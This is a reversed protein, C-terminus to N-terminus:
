NKEIIATYRAYDYGESDILISIGINPTTVELVYYVGEQVRMLGNNQKIFDQDVLLNDTFATFEKATMVITKMISYECGDKGWSRITETDQKVQEIDGAKRVFIAKM